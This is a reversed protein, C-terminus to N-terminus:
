ASLLARNASRSLALRVHVIRFGHRFNARLGNRHLRVLRPAGEVAIGRKSGGEAGASERKRDEEYGPRM